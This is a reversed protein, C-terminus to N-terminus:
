LNSQTGSSPPSGTTPKNGEKMRALNSQQAQNAMAQQAGMAGQAARKAEPPMNAPLQDVTKPAAESAKKATEVDGTEDKACGVLLGALAVVPLIFKMM